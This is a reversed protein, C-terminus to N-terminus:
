LGTHAVRERRKRCVACYGALLTKGFLATTVNDVGKKSRILVRGKSNPCLDIIGISGLINQTTQRAEGLLTDADMTTRTDTPGLKVLLGETEAAEAGPGKYM